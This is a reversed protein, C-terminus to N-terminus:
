QKNAAKKRDILIYLFTLLPISASIILALYPFATFFTQGSLIEVDKCVYGFSEPECLDVTKGKNTIIASIGTNASRVVYRGVEAARLKSQYLHMYVAASTGFWSDNTALFIINAGDKAASQANFPYISDFCILPGVYFDNQSFISANCGPSLDESLMSIDELFPALATMIKRAPVYEGFPVLSRKKYINKDISGDKKVRMIVNYSANETYEFTGFYIDIDCEKALSTMKEKYLPSSDFNFNLATESWLVIKAGENAAQKTLIVHKEFEDDLTGQWKEQSSINPQMAAAKISSETKIGNNAFLILILCVATIVGPLIYVKIEKFKLIVLALAFNALVIIFSLGQAGVFSVLSLTPSFESQGLASIGWPVGWWGVYLSFEWLTYLASFLLPLIIHDHRNIRKKFKAFILFVFGGTIAQLLPIGLWALLIVALASFKSFGAFDLPYLSWFWCFCVLGFLYFYLFGMRYIKKGDLDTKYLFICLPIMFVFQFPFLFKPFILTLASLCASTFIYIYSVSKKM